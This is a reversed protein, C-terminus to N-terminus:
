EPLLYVPDNMCDILTATECTIKRTNPNDWWNCLAAYNGIKAAFTPAHDQVTWALSPSSVEQSYPLMVDAGGAAIKLRHSIIQSPNAGATVLEEYRLFAIGPTGVRSSPQAFHPPQNISAVADPTEFHLQRLYTEEKGLHDQIWNSDLPVGVLCSTTNTGWYNSLRRPCQTIKLNSVYKQFVNRRLFLVVGRAAPAIASLFAANAMPNMLKYSFWSAGLSTCFGKISRMASGVESRLLHALTLNKYTHVVDRLAVLAGNPASLRKRLGTNWEPIHPVVLQRVLHTKLDNHLKADFLDM